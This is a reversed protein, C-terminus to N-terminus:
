RYCLKPMKSGLHDPQRFSVRSNLLTIFDMKQASYADDHRSLPLQFLPFPSLFLFRRQPPPTSISVYLRVPGFELAHPHPSAGAGFPRTFASSSPSKPSPSFFFILIHLPRPNPRIADPHACILYSYGPVTRVVPNSGAFGGVLHPLFPCYNQRIGTALQPLSLSLQWFSDFNLRWRDTVSITSSSSPAVVSIAGM